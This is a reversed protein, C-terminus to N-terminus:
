CPHNWEDRDWTDRDIRRFLDRAREDSMWGLNMAVERLPALEDPLHSVVTYTQVAKM